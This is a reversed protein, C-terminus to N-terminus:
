FFPTRTLLTILNILEFCGEFKSTEKKDKKVVVATESVDDGVESERAGDDMELEMGETQDGELEDSGGGGVSWFPKRESVGVSVSLRKQLERVKELEVGFERQREVERQELMRLKVREREIEKSREEKYQRRLTELETKFDIGSKKFSRPNDVEDDEQEQEQIKAERIIAMREALQPQHYAMAIKM